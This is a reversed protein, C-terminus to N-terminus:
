IENTASVPNGMYYTLSLLLLFVVTFQKSKPLHLALNIKGKVNVISNVGDFNM